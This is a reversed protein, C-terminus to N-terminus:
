FERSGSSWTKTLERSIKAFRACGLISILDVTVKFDYKSETFCDDDAMLEIMSFVGDKTEDNDTDAKQLIQKVTEDNTSRIITQIKKRCFFRLEKRM